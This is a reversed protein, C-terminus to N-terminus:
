PTRLRLTRIPSTLITLIEFVLTWISSNEDTVSDLTNCPVTDFLWFSSASVVSPTAIGCYLATGATAGILCMSLCVFLTPVVAATLCDTFGSRHMRVGGVRPAPPPLGYRIRGDEVEIDSDSDSELDIVDVSFDNASPILPNGPVFFSNMYVGSNDNFGLSMSM